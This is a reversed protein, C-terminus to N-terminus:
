IGETRMVISDSLFPGDRRSKDVQYAPGNLLNITGTAIATVSEATVEVEVAVLWREPQFLRGQQLSMKPGLLFSTLSLSERVTNYFRTGGGLFIALAGDQSYSLVDEIMRKNEADAEPDLIDVVREADSVAHREPPITVDFVSDATYMDALFELVDPRVRGLGAEICIAAGVDYPGLWEAHRAMFRAAADSASEADSAGLALFVRRRGVDPGLSSPFSM